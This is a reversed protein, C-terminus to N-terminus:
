RHGGPRFLETALALAAGLCLLIMLFAALRGMPDSERYREALTPDDDDDM